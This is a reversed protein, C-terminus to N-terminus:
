TPNPATNDIDVVDGNIYLKENRFMARDGKLHAVRMQQKAMRKLNHDHPTLDELFFLGGQGHKNISHHAGGLLRNCSAGAGLEVVEKAAADPPHM